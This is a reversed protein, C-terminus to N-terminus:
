TNGCIDVMYDNKVDLKRGGGEGGMITYTCYMTYLIVHIYTCM